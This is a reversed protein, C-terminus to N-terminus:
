PWGSIPATRAATVSRSDCFAFARRQRCSEESQAAASGMRAAAPRWKRFRHAGMRASSRLLPHQRRGGRDAQDRARHLSRTRRSLRGPRGAICFGLCNEGIFQQQRSRSLAHELRAGARNLHCASCWTLCHSYPKALRSTWQTIPHGGRRAPSSTDSCANPAMSFLVPAFMSKFNEATVRLPGIVITVSDRGSTYLASCVSACKSSSLTNSSNEASGACHTAITVPAPSLANQAPLSRFHCAAPPFRPQSLPPNAPSVERKSQSLGIMAATLPTAMPPPKSIASAQSRMMAESFAVNANGSGRTPRAASAPPNCRSGRCIPSFRAIPMIRVARWTLARSPCSSPKTLSTTGWPSASAAASRQASVMQLFLGIDIRAELCVM